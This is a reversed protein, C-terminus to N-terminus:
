PVLYQHANLFDAVNMRRRGPAQVELLRLAGAGTGVVIGDADARLIRGPEASAAGPVLDAAWFKMAMGDLEGYAGPFPNFARIQRWIAVAPATWAVQAEAREIKAAYTVGDDAQPTGILKGAKPLAEDLLEAGLRALRDHLSGATDDDRIPTRGCALVPGTDLGAEMAMLCVGTEGDGALLARQIPAAGRWRPLLSAHLNWCGYRPM